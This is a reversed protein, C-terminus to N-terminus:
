SCSTHNDTTVGNSKYFEHFRTHQCRNLVCHKLLTCLKVKFRKVDTNANFTQSLFNLSSCSAKSNASLNCSGFVSM